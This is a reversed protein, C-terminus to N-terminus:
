DVSVFEAIINISKRKIKDDSPEGMSQAFPVGRTIWVAGGDYPVTVGSRGIFRSIRDALNNNAKGASYGDRDLDWISATLPISDGFSGTSIQYTIYPYESGASSFFEARKVPDTPVSNEEFAHLGFGSWFAWLAAEKTM